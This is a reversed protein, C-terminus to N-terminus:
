LEFDRLELSLGKENLTTKMRVLAGRVEQVVDPYEQFDSM